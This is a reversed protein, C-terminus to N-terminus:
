LWLNVIAAGDRDPAEVITQTSFALSAGDGGLDWLGGRLFVNVGARFGAPVARGAMGYRHWAACESIRGIDSAAVGAPAAAGNYGRWRTHWVGAPELYSPVAVLDAGRARLTAYVEPYWSDACIAIGLRGAPTDFVPLDELRGAATFGREETVLFVKRVLQECATGDPRYVVSVNYLAGRGARLEGAAVCPDPLVLSGAVITAGSEVALRAFVAHYIRAMAGARMRFLSERLRNASRAARLAHVFAPGHRAILLLAAQDLRGAGYVARPAGAVVLWSGLYEPLVVITHQNLWGARRAASLLRRIADYFTRASAYDGPHMWPQVALLNGRGADAGHTVLAPLRAAEIALPAGPEEILM